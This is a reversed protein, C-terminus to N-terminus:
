PLVAQLRMTDVGAERALRMLRIDSPEGVGLATLRPDGFVESTSGEFAVRGTDLVVVRDCIRALLDTKQEAILIATGDAALRRIAAAVSKTGAPDLQATPEDLILHRPRTAFLGAMAVLQMQGGSLRAPDREALHSIGMADLAAETRALVDARPLGLNMPGFAVEEYVTECVTSLQAAPDQFCIGVQAALDHMQLPATDEAGLLLRGTLTGRIARPALGSAVLCVTTKGSESPGVLGVVEGDGLQLDM